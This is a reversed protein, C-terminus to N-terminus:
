EVQMTLTREEGSKQFLIKIEGEEQLFRRVKGATRRSGDNIVALKRGCPRHFNITTDPDCDIM